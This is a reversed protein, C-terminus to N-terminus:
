DLHFFAGFLHKKDSLVIGKDHNWGNYTPWYPSVNRSCKSPKRYGSLKLLDEVKGKVYDPLSADADYSNNVKWSSLSFGLFSVYWFSYTMIISFM